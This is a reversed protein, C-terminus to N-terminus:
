VKMIHYYMTYKTYMITIQTKHHLSKASHSLKHTIPNQVHSLNHTMVKNYINLQNQILLLQPFLSSILTGITGSTSSRM